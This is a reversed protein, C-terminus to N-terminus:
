EERYECRGEMGRARITANFLDMALLSIHDSSWSVIRAVIQDGKRPGFVVGSVSADVFSGAGGNVLPLSAVGGAKSYPFSVKSYALLVGGVDRRYRMVYRQDLEQRVYDLPAKHYLPPVCASIAVESVFLASSVGRKRM